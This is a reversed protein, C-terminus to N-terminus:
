KGTITFVCRPLSLTGIKKCLCEGEYGLYANEGTILMYVPARTRKTIQEPDLENPARYHLCAALYFLYLLKELVSVLM